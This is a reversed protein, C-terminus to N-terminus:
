IDGQNIKSTTILLDGERQKNLIKMRLLKGQNGFTINWMKINAVWSFQSLSYDFLIFLTNATSKTNVVVLFSNPHCSISSICSQSKEKLFYREILYPQSFLASLFIHSFSIIFLMRHKYSIIIPGWKQKACKHVTLCPM